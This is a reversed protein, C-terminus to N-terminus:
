SPGQPVLGQYYYTCCHFGEDGRGGRAKGALLSPYMYRSVCVALHEEEGPYELCQVVM